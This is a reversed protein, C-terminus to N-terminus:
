GDLLERLAAGARIHEADLAALDPLPGSLGSLEMQRALEALASAGFTNANSKLSHAARRFSDSDGAAAAQKLEAIMGPAEELFTAALEAAFDAGTAAQLEAFVAPDLPSGSM